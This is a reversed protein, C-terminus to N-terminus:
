DLSQIVTMLDNADVTGSLDTDGQEVALEGTAYMNAMVIQLDVRDIVGDFNVDGLQGYDYVDFLRVEVDRTQYLVLDLHSGFPESVGERVATFSVSFWGNGLDVPTSVKPLTSGDATFGVFVM